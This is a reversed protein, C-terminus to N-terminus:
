PTVVLPGLGRPTGPPTADIAVVDRSPRLPIIGFLYVQRLITVTFPPGAAVCPLLTPMIARTVSDGPAVQWEADTWGGSTCEEGTELAIQTRARGSVAGWPTERVVTVKGDAVSWGVQRVFRTTPLFAWAIFLVVVVIALKDIARNM